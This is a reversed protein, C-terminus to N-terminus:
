CKSNKYYTYVPHNGPVIAIVFFGDVRSDMCGHKSQLEKMAVSRDHPAYENSFKVDGNDNIKIITWSMVNVELM